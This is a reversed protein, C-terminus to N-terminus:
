SEIGPELEDARQLIDSLQDILLRRGQTNSIISLTKRRWDLTIAGVAPLQIAANRLPQMQSLFTGASYERGCNLDCRTKVHAFIGLVVELGFPRSLMYDTWSGWADPWLQSVAKFYEKIIHAQQGTTRSALAGGVTLHPALWRKLATNKVWRGRDVDLLKIKGQLPSDPDAALMHVVRVVQTDDQPLGGIQYYIELVHNDTV